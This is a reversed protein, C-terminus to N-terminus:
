LGYYLIGKIKNIYELLTIAVSRPQYFIGMKLAEGVFITSASSFLRYKECFMLTEIYEKKKNEPFKTEDFYQEGGNDKVMVQKEMIEKLNRIDFDTMSELANFLIIDENNFERNESKIEGLMLGIIAAAIKSNSLIIKRFATSVYLAREENSVYNYLENISKEVNENKSLAKLADHLKKTNSANALMLIGEFATGAGPLLTAVEIVDIGLIDYIKTKLQELNGKANEMMNEVMVEGKGQGSCRYNYYEGLRWSAVSFSM